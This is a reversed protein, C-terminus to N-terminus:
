HDSHSSKSIRSLVTGRTRKPFPAYQRGIVETRMTVKLESFCMRRQRSDTACCVYAGSSIMMMSLAEVSELQRNTESLLIGVVLTRLSCFVPKAAAWFWAM